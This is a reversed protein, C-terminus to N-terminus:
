EMLAEEGELIISNIGIPADFEDELQIRIRDIVEETINTLNIYTVRLLFGEGDKRAIPDIVIVGEDELM